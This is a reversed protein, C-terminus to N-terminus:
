TRVSRSTTGTVIQNGNLDPHKGQLSSDRKYAQAVRKPTEQRQGETAFGQMLVGRPMSDADETIRYGSNGKSTKAKVPFSPIVKAKTTPNIMIPIRSYNTTTQVHFGPNLNLGSLSEAPLTTISQPKEHQNKESGTREKSRPSVSTQRIKFERQQTNKQEIQRDREM